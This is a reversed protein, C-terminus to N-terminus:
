QLPVQRRRHASYMFRHCRAGVDLAAEIDDIARQQRVSGSTVPVCQAIAMDVEVPKQQRDAASHNSQLRATDAINGGTVKV